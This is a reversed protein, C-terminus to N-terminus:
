QCVYTYRIHCKCEWEHTRLNNRGVHLGLLAAGVMMLFLGQFNLM